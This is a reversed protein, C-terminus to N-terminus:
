GPSKTGLREDINEGFCKVQHFSNKNQCNDVLTAVEIQDRNWALVM